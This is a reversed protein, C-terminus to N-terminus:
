VFCFYLHPLHIHCQNSECTPPTGSWEGNQQCIRPTDGILEYEGFCIYHAMGGVGNSTIRVAGNAPNSLTECETGTVKTNLLCICMLSIVPSFTLGCTVHLMKCYQIYCAHVLQNIMLGLSLSYLYDVAQM